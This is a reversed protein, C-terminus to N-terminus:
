ARRLVGVSWGGAMREPGDQVVWASTDLSPFFTDCEHTGDISTWYIREVLGQDLAYRYLREGGIVFPHPDNSRAIASELTPCVVAEDMTESVVLNERKPLPRKPLSEWTKRGMIVTHNTTLRRFRELDGPVQWPLTGDRGIGRESDYAVILSM